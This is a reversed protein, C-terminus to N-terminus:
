TSSDVFLVTRLDGLHGLTWTSIYCSSEEPYDLVSYEKCEMGGWPETRTM